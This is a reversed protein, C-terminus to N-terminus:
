SREILRARKNIDIVNKGNIYIMKRCYPCKNHNENNSLIWDTICKLHYGHKCDLLCLEGNVRCIMCEGETTQVHDEELKRKGGFNRRKDVVFFRNVRNADRRRRERIIREIDANIMNEILREVEGEVVGVQRELPRPPPIDWFQRNM